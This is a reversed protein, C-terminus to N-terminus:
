ASNRSANTNGFLSRIVIKEYIAILEQDPENEQQLTKIKILAFQQSTLLPVVIHERMLISARSEPYNEMLETYNTIQLLLKKTLLFEDYIIQWFGGFEPDNKM